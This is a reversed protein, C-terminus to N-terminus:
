KGRITFIKSASEQHLPFEQNYINKFSCEPKVKLTTNKNIPSFYHQQINQYTIAALAPGVIHM